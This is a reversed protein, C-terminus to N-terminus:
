QKAMAVRLREEPDIFHDHDDDGLDIQVWKIKGTFRSTQPTYAPTVTTGSEYGIDTTEDASFVMPQTAGVRGTGVAQGDYYLTVDGGKALGGGDYAFEMRVQHTGAPIPETAETAFEQIGLVNYAFRARGDQVHVCWGGFRGGQAIIVGSAGAGDSPIDVEATVSFSKNKISVVSNESLRGMGPFFLQSNGRILTPRGAMGPDLREATRDDLPLVNYKTAEILWLRQLMALKDPMEAALDNAQSYDNEGDYLEWLDADFAPIVGGVMVWPTRH